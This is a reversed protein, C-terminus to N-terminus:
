HIPCLLSQWKQTTRSRRKPEGGGPLHVHLNILGPMLYRGALDITQGEAPTDASPTIGKIIGDEVTVTMDPQPTMEETGDLITCHVYNTKM